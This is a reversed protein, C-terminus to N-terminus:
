CKRPRRCPASATRTRRPEDAQALRPARGPSAGDERAVRSPRQWFTESVHPLELWAYVLIARKHCAEILRRLYADREADPENYHWAAVHLAAIGAKRWRKRSTTSISAPATRRISSPGCGTRDSRRSCASIPSRRCARISLARIRSSRAQDRALAGSRRRAQLGAMLPRRDMTGQRLGACRRPTRLGAVGAGKGLHHRAEAVARRHRQPRGGKEIDAQHRVGGRRGVLRRSNRVSRSSDARACRRAPLDSAQRLSLGVADFIGPWAGPEDTLLLVPQASLCSAFALSVLFRM